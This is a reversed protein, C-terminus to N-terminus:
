AGVRTQAHRHLFRAEIAALNTKLRRVERALSLRKTANKAPTPHLVTRTM